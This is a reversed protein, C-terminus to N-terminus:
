SVSTTVELPGLSTLGVVHFDNALVKRWISDVHFGVQELPDDPFALVQNQTGDPQTVCGLMQSKEARDVGLIEAHTQMATTPYQQRTLQSVQGAQVRGSFRGKHRHSRFGDLEVLRQSDHPRGPIRLSFLGIQPQQHPRVLLPSAESFQQKRLHDVIEAGTANAAHDGAHEALIAPHAIQGYSLTETGVPLRVPGVRESENAIEAGVGFRDLKRRLLVGNVFLGRAARGVRAAGTRRVQVLAVAAEAPEATRHRM